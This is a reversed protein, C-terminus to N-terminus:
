FAAAVFASRGIAKTTRRLLEFLLLTNATHLLVNVVHYAGADAGFLSVDLLHSMWTLPHWYPAHGTTLAWWVTSWSLGRLVTPNETIYTPDDWNVLEVRGVNAYIVVHLLVLAIYVLRRTQM